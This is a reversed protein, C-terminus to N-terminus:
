SRLKQAAANNALLTDIVVFLGGALAISGMVTLYDFWLIPRDAAEFLSPVLLAGLLAV